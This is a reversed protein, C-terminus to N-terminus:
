TKKQFILAARLIDHHLLEKEIVTRLVPYEANQSIVQEVLTDFTPM